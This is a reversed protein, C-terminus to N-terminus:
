EVLVSRHSASRDRGAYAINLDATSRVEMAGVIVQSGMQGPTGGITVANYGFYLTGKVLSGRASAITAHNHNSRDQWIVVGTEGDIGLADDL